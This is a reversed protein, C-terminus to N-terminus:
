EWKKHLQFQKTSSWVLHPAPTSATGFLGYLCPEITCKPLGHDPWYQSVSPRSQTLERDTRSRGQDLVVLTDPQWPSILSASEGVKSSEKRKRKKVQCNITVWSIYSCIILSTCAHSWSSYFLRSADLTLNHKSLAQFLILNKQSFLFLSSIIKVTCIFVM